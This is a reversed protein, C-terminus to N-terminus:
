VYRTAEVPKLRAARIAPWLGGVLATFLTTVAASELGVLHVSAHVQSPLRVGMLDVQGLSGLSVNGLLVMLGFALLVGAALGVLGQIASEALVLGLIRRRRTGLSMLVGFERTREFTSMTMTNLVGLAVILFVVFDVIHQKQRKEEMMGKLEPLIESWSLAELTKLDLAGKLAPMPATLDEDAGPLRVIITHVGDGLGFFDQADKLHLIVASQNMDATGADVLGAVTFRDNAVSGDAALGVLVLESGPSVDLQEALVTGVLVLKQPTDPLLKGKVLNLLTGEKEREPQVGMVLAASSADGSGALGWGLVRREPQAGPLAKELTAEVTLPDRVVNELTPEAQYGNGHIQLNGVLGATIESVMRGYMSERYSHIGVIATVGLTLASVTILTRRQNRWVNRWALSLLM